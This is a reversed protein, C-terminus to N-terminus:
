PNDIFQLSKEGPKVLGQNKTALQSIYEPDNLKKIQENLKASEAKVSDIKHQAAALKAEAASHRQMQSFLNYGAWALFLAMIAMWIRLRRKAGSYVTTQTTQNVPASAM